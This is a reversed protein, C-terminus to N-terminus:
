RLMAQMQAIAEAATKPKASIKVPKPMTAGTRRGKSAGVQDAVKTERALMRGDSARREQEMIRNLETQRIENAQDAQKKKEHPPLEFPCVYDLSVGAFDRLADRCNEVIRREAEYGGSEDDPSIYAARLHDMTVSPVRSSKGSKLRALVYARRILPGTFGKLGFTMGNIEEADKEPDISLAGDFIEAIDKLHQIMAPDTALDPLMIIPSALLRRCDEPPRKKLKHGLSYNCSYVVPPGLGGLRTLVDVIRSNADSKNLWQFEDPAILCVGKQYLRLRTLDVDASGGGKFNEQIGLPALTKNMLEARSIGETIELRAVSHIDFPPLAKCTTVTQGNVMLRVLAKLLTSKGVGSHGTFMVMSPAAATAHSSRIGKIFQDTSAYQRLAYSLAIDSFRRILRLDQQSPAFTDKIADKILNSSVRPSFDHIGPHVTPSVRLLKALTTDSAPLQLAKIWPSNM